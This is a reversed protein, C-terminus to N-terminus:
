DQSSRCGSGMSRDLGGGSNGKARRGDSGPPHTTHPEDRARIAPRFHTSAKREPVGSYAGADGARAQRRIWFISAVGASRAKTSRFETEKNDNAIEGKWG